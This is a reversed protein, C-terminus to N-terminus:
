LSDLEAGAVARMALMAAHGGDLTYTVPGLPGAHVRGLNRCAMWISEAPEVFGADCCAHLVAAITRLTRPSPASATARLLPALSAAAEEFSGHAVYARCLAGVSAEDEIGRSELARYLRKVTPLERECLRMVKNYANAGLLFADDHLDSLCELGANCGDAECQQDLRRLQQAVAKRRLASGRPTTCLAYASAAMAALMAAVSAINPESQRVFLRPQRSHAENSRRQEPKAHGSTRSGHSVRRTYVSRPDDYPASRAGINDVCPRIECSSLHCM